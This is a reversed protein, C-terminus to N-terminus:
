KQTAKINEIYSQYQDRFYSVDRLLSSTGVIFGNAGAAYMKQSNEPTTNGDVFIDADIHCRKLLAAIRELKDFHDPVMTQGQFGPNVAMVIVFDLVSKVETLIEIPTGPNFVLGAKLGRDRIQQLLKYPQKCTEFHFSVRDGESVNFYDLYREPELCMLHIDIPINTLEKLNRYFPTGLMINQVYHGDMVDFHISDIGMEEFARIFERVEWLKCCMISPSIKITKNM